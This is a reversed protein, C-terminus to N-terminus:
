PYFFLVAYVWAITEEMVNRFGQSSRWWKDPNYSMNEIAYIGIETERDFALEFLYRSHRAHCGISVVDIASIPKGEGELWEKV